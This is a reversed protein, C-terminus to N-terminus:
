MLTNDINDILDYDIAINEIDDEGLVDVQDEEGQPHLEIDPDRGDVTEEDDEEVDADREREEHTRQQFSEEPDEPMFKKYVDIALFYSYTLSQALM